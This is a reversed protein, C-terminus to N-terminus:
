AQKDRVFLPIPVSIPPLASRDSPEQLMTQAYMDHTRIDRTTSVAMRPQHHICEM